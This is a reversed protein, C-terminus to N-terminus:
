GMEELMHQEHAGLVIWLVVLVGTEDGIVTARVICKSCHFLCVVEELDGILLEM